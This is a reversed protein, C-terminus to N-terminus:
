CSFWTRSDRCASISLQSCLEFATVRFMGGHALDMEVSSLDIAGSPHPPAAEAACPPEGAKWARVIDHPQM